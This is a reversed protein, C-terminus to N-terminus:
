QAADRLQRIEDATLDSVTASQSLQLARIYSVVTWRDEVVLQHAYPSMAGFGNTIVDFFHGAATSRMSATHFSPPVTRFGRKIVIGDGNGVFGHCPTCYINYLRRGRELSTMTLRIPPAAASTNLLSPDVPLRRSVTGRPLPRASLDREVFAAAEYTNYRPQDTMKQACGSALLLAAAAFVSRFITYRM